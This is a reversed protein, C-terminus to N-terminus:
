DHIKRHFLNVKEGTTVCCYGENHTLHKSWVRLNDDSEVLHILMTRPMYGAFVSDAFEGALVSGTEKMVKLFTNKHKVFKSLKNGIYRMNELMPRVLRNMSKSTMSLLQVDRHSLRSAVGSWVPYYYTLITEIKSVKMATRTQRTGM